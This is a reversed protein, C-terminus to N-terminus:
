MVKVQYSGDFTLGTKKLYIGSNVPWFIDLVTKSNTGPSAVTRAVHGCNGPENKSVNFVASPGNLVQNKVTIVYSGSQNSSILTGQTSTLTFNNISIGLSDVYFKTAADHPLEPHQVNTIPQYNGATSLMDISSATISTTTISSNSVSTNIIYSADLYANAEIFFSM